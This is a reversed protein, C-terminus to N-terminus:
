GDNFDGGEEEVKLIKLFEDPESWKAVASLPELMKYCEDKWEYLYGIDDLLTVFQAQGGDEMLHRMEQYKEVALKAMRVADDPTIADLAMVYSDVGGATVHFDIDARDTFRKPYRLYRICHVKRADLFDAVDDQFTWNRPYGFSKMYCSAEMIIQITSAIVWELSDSPGCRAQFENQEFKVNSSHCIRAISKEYDVPFRVGALASNIWFDFDGRDTILISDGDAWFYLGLVTGDPYVCPTSVGICGDNGDADREDIEFLAGYGSQGFCCGLTERLEAKNM